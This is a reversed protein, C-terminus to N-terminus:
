WRPIWKTNRLLSHFGAERLMRSGIEVAKDWKSKVGGASGGLVM